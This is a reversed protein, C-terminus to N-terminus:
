CFPPARIAKTREHGSPPLVTDTWVPRAIATAKSQELAITKPALCPGLACGHACVPGCKCSLPDHSSPLGQELASPQCLSTLGAAAATHPTLASALVLLCLRMVFALSALAVLPRREQRLVQLHTLRSTM